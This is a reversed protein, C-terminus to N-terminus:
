ERFYPFSTIQPEFYKTQSILKERKRIICSAGADGIILNPAKSTSHAIDCLTSYHATPFLQIGFSEGLIRLISPSDDPIRSLNILIFKSTSYVYQAMRM